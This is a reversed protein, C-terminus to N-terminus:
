AVPGRDRRACGPVSRGRRLVRDCSGRRRRHRSLARAGRLADVRGISRWRDRGCRHSVDDRRPLDRRAPGSRARAHRAAEAGRASRRHARARRVGGRTGAAVIGPARDFRAIAEVIPRVEDLRGQERRLSFMQVGYVGSADVGSLTSALDSAEGALREADAFRGEMLAFTSGVAASLHVHFPEQSLLAIRRHEALVDRVPAFEGNLMLSLTLWQQAHMAMRPDDLDACLEKLEFARELM